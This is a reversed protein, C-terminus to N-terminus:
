HVNDTKLNNKNPKPTNCIHSLYETVDWFQKTLLCPWLFHSTNGQYFTILTVMSPCTDCILRNETPQLSNHIKQIQLIKSKSVTNQTKVFLPNAQVLM